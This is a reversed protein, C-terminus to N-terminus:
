GPLKPTRAVVSLHLRDFKLPMNLLIGSVSGLLDSVIIDADNNIRIFDMLEPRYIYGDLM